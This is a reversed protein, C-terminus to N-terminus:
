VVGSVIVCRSLWVGGCVVFADHPITHSEKTTQSPIHTPERQTIAHSLTNLSATIIHSPVVVFWWVADCLMVSWCERDCVIVCWWVGRWWVCWLRWVNSLIVGSWGGDWVMMVCWWVSDSVEVCWWAGHWVMVRWQVWRAGDCVAVGDCVVAFWCVAVCWWVKDCVMVCRWCWWKVVDDYWWMMVDDCRWMMVDDCWWM